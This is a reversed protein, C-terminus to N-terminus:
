EEGHFESPLFVSITFPHEAVDEVVQNCVSVTVQRRCQVSLKLERIVLSTSCVKVHQNAM